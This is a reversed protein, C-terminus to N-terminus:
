SSVPQDESSSLELNWERWLQPARFLIPMIAIASVGSAVLLLTSGMRSLLGAALCSLPALGQNCFMILSMLRGMKGIEIQCQLSALTNLNAYGGIAGCMFLVAALVKVHWLLGACVLLVGSSLYSSVLVSGLKHQRRLHGALLTGVLGGGGLSSYLLGLHAADGFREKAMLPLGVSFAGTLLMNLIAYALLLPRIMSHALADSIGQRISLTLPEQSIPTLITPTSMLSLMTVSVVFSAADIGFVVGLGSWSIVLGALLPGILGWFRAVAFMLSNGAPLQESDLLTPLVAFDAPHFFGECTGFIASLVYLHWMKTTHTFLLAALVFVSLGRFVNSVLMVRRPTFRDVVAGGALMLASYPLASTMFISGLAFGSGTLQLVLWPLGIAFFRDGLISVSEGIWLLRFDRVGFPTFITSGRPETFRM